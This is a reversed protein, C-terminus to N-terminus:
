KARRKLAELVQEASYRVTRHGLKITPLDLRYLQRRSVQLWDCMQDVTLIAERAPVTSVETM